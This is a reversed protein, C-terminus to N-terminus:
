QVRTCIVLVQTTDQSHPDHRSSVELCFLTLSLSACLPFVLPWSEQRWCYTCTKAQLTISHPSSLIPLFPPLSFLISSSPLPSQMWSRANLGCVNCLYSSYRCVGLLMSKEGEQECSTEVATQLHILVSFKFSLRASERGVCVGGSEVGTPVLYHPAGGGFELTQKWVKQRKNSATSVCHFYQM